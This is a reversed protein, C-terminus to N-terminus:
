EAKLLSDVGYLRALSDLQDGMGEIHLERGQSKALNKCALLLSIASSDAEVVAQCDLCTIGSGFEDKFDEYLQSVTQLNVKGYLQLIHNTRILNTSAPM